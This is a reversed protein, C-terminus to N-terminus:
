IGLVKDLPKIDWKDAEKLEKFGAALLRQKCENVVSVFSSQKAVVVTTIVIKLCCFFTIIIVIPCPPEMYQLSFYVRIEIYYKGHWPSPAKNIFNVLGQAAAKSTM